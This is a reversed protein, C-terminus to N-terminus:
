KDFVPAGPKAGKNDNGVLQLRKLHEGLHKLIIRVQSTALRRKGAIQRYGLGLIYHDYAVQLDAESFRDRQRVFSIYTEGALRDALSKARRALKRASIGTLIELQKFRVQHNLHMELLIRDDPELLGLRLQLCEVRYAM